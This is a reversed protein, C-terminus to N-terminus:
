KRGKIFRPDPKSEGSGGTGVMEKLIQHRWSITLLDDILWDPQDLLGGPEPMFKWDFSQM